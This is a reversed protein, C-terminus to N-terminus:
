AASANPLNTRTTDQPTPHTHGAAKTKTNPSRGKTETRGRVLRVFMEETKRYRQTLESTEPAILIPEAPEVITNQRCGLLCSPRKQQRLQMLQRFVPEIAVPVCNKM